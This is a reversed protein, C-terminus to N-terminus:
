YTYIEGSCIGLYEYAFLEKKTDIDVFVKQKSCKLSKYRRNTEIKIRKVKNGNQDIILVKNELTLIRLSYWVRWRENEFVDNKLPLSDKFPVFSDNFKITDNANSSKILHRIKKIYIKTDIIHNYNTVSFLSTTDTIVTLNNFDFKIIKGHPQYDLKIKQGFSSITILLFFILLLKRTMNHLAEIHSEIALLLAKKM